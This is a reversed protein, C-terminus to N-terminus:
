NEPTVNVRALGLIASNVVLWLGAWFVSITGQDALYALVPTVVASLVYLVSRVQSPLIMNM